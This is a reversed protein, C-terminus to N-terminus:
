SETPELRMTAAAAASGIMPDVYQAGHRAYKSRYAADIVDPPLDDADVFVVDRDRGAVRIRGTGSALAQRFWAGRRGHWSRVFLQEGVRVVWITTFPRLSGDARAAAIQVEEAAGIQALDDATWSPTPSM